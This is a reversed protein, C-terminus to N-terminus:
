LYTLIRRPTPKGAQKRTDLDAHYKVWNYFKIFEDYSKFSMRRDNITYDQTFAQAGHNLMAEDLKILLQQYTTLEEAM